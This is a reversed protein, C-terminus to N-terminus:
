RSVLVGGVSQSSVGALRRESLPGADLVCLPAEYSLLLFVFPRNVFPRLVQVSMEGSLTRSYGVLM